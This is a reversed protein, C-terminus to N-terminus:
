KNAQRAKDWVADAKAAKDPKKGGSNPDIDSNGSRNLEEKMAKRAAEEAAERQEDTTETANSKPEAPTDALIEIIDEASMNPKALMKGALKERGAFHESAMVAAVRDNAAKSAAEEGARVGALYEKSNKDIESMETEEEEDPENGPKPDEQPAPPPPADKSAKAPGASRSSGLDAFRSTTM